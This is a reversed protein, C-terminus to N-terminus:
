NEDVERSSPQPAQSSRIKEEAAARANPSMKNLAKNLQKQKEASTGARNAKKPPQKQYRNNGGASKNPAKKVPAAKKNANNNTNARRAPTKPKPKDGAGISGKKVNDNAPPAKSPQVGAEELEAQSKGRLVLVKRGDENVEESLVSEAKDGRDLQYQKGRNEYVVTDPNATIDIIESPNDDGGIRDGIYVFETATQTVGRSRTRNRSRSSRGSSRKRRNNQPSIGRTETQGEILFAYKEGSPDVIVSSVKWNSLPGGQAIQDERPKPAPERKKTPAPPVAYMDRILKTTPDAKTREKPLEMHVSAVTPLDEKLEDPGGLFFDYAAYGVLYLVGLNVAVLLWRTATVSFRM